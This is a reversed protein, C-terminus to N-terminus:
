AVEGLGAVEEDRLQLWLLGILWEIGPASEGRGEGRATAAQRVIEACAGLLREQGRHLVRASAPPLHVMALAEGSLHTHLAGFLALALRETEESDKRAVADALKRAARWLTEHDALPHEGAAAEFARRHGRGSCTRAGGHAASAALRVSSRDRWRAEHRSAQEAHGDM